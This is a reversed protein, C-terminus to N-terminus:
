GVLDLTYGANRLATGALAALAAGLSHGTVVFQYDPYTSLASEIQATVDDAVAQWAKWFGSHVDCGDCLGTDDNFAFTLDAIWNSIDTSGRFSLVILSNTKDVALFGATDGYDNSSSIILVVPQSYPERNWKSTLSTYLQLRRRSCKLVTIPRALLRIAQVPPM